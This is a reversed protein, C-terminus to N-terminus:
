SDEHSAQKNESRKDSAAQQKTSAAKEDKEKGKQTTKDRRCNTALNKYYNPHKFVFTM